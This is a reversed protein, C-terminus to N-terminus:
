RARDAGAAALQRNLALVNVHPEGLIGLWPTEINRQVLARVTEPRLDRARAVRPVQAFAAAPSIDPDLGSASATVLDAPIPGTVGDSRAQAVASRTRDVLAKSAPGLNSGSSALPDYGTGAASPRGHFNRPAAFSQGIAASGVIRGNQEILSGNAQWPMLAQGVGLIALPYALGLLLSFLLLLVLAPRLQQTM